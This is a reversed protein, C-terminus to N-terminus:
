SCWAVRCSGCVGFAAMRCHICHRRGQHPRDLSWTVGGEGSCEWDQAETNGVGEGSGGMGKTDTWGLHDMTGVISARESENGSVPRTLWVIASM